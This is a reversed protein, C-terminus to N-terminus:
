LFRRFNINEGAFCWKQWLDLEIENNNCFIIDNTRSLEIELGSSNVYM